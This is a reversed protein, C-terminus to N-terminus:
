SRLRWRAAWTGPPELQAPLRPPVTVNLSATRQMEGLTLQPQRRLWDLGPRVDILTQRGGPQKIARLYGAGIAQYTATRTMGSLLCWDPITVFEPYTKRM